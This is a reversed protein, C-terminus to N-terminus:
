VGTITFNLKVANSSGNANQATITATYNGKKLGPLKLKFTNAGAAGSLPPIRKHVSTTCNKGTKAMPKCVGEVKHGKVTQTILVETSTTCRKGKKAMPKCVGNVKHGKVTHTLVLDITASQSLTLKVATGKKARFKKSALKAGTVTPRMVPAGLLLGQTIGSSDTYDGIATCTDTSACSVATLDVYPNTAANVPLSAEVGAGWTGSSESL